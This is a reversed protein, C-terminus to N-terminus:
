SVRRTIIGFVFLALFQRTIIRLLLYGLFEEAAQLPRLLERAKKKKKKSAGKKPALGVVLADMSTANPPFSQAAPQTTACTNECMYM